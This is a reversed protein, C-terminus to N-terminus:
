RKFFIDGSKSVQLYTGQNISDGGFFVYSIAHLVIGSAGISMVLLPHHMADLHDIHILTQLAEILLSFCFSAFFVCCVLMTVIDIRAWGFTNKM